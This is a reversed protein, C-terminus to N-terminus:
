RKVLTRNEWRSNVDKENVKKATSEYGENWFANM